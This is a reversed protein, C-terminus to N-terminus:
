PLGQNGRAAYKRRLAENRFEGLFFLLRTLILSLFLTM